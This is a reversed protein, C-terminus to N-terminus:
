FLGLNPLIVDYLDHPHLYTWRWHMSINLRGWTYHHAPEPELGPWSCALGTFTNRNM